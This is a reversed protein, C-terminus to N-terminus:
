LLRWYIFTLKDDNTLTPLLRWKPPSSEQTIRWEKKMRGGWDEWESHGQEGEDGSPIVRQSLLSMSWSQIPSHPFVNLVVCEPLIFLLRSECVDKWNYQIIILVRIYWRITEGTVMDTRPGYMTRVHDTEWWDKRGCVNIPHRNCILYEGQM